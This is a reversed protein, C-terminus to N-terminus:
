NDRPQSSTKPGLMEAVRWAPLNGEENKRLINRRAAIMWM